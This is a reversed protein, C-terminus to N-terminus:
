DPKINGLKNNIEVILRKMYPHKDVPKAGIEYLAESKYKVMRKRANLYVSLVKFLIKGRLKLKFDKKIESILNRAPRNFDKRLILDAQAYTNDDSYNISIYTQNVNIPQNHLLILDIRTRKGNKYEEVEFAFWEIMKELLQKYDNLEEEDL